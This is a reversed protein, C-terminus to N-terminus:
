ICYRAAIVPSAPIGPMPRRPVTSGKLPSGGYALSKFFRTKKRDIGLGQM